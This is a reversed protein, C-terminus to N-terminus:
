GKIVKIEAKNKYHEELKVREKTVHYNESELQAIRKALNNRIYRRGAANPSITRIKMHDSYSGVFPEESVVVVPGSDWTLYVNWLTTKKM